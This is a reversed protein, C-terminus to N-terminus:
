WSCYSYSGGNDPFIIFHELKKKEAAEIALEVTSYSDVRVVPTSEADFLVYM